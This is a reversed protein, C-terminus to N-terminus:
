HWYISLRLTAYWSTSMHVELIPSARVEDGGRRHPNQQEILNYLEEKDM